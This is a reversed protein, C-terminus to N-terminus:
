DENCTNRFQKYVQGTPAVGIEGNQRDFKDCLVEGNVSEAYFESFYPQSFEISPRKTQVVNETYTEWIAFNGNYKSIRDDKVTKTVGNPLLVTITNERDNVLYGVEYEKEGNTNIESYSLCYFNDLNGDIIGINVSNKTFVIHISGNVVDEVRDLGLKSSILAISSNGKIKFKCKIIKINSKLDVGTYKAVVNNANIHDNNCVLNNNLIYSQEYKSYDKLLNGNSDLYYGNILTDHEMYGCANFYHWKGDINRWGTKWSSGETYLKRSSYKWWPILPSVSIIIVLVGGLISLLTIKNFNINLM